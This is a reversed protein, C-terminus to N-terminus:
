GLPYHPSTEPGGILDFRSADFAKDTAGAGFLAQLAITTGEFGGEQSGGNDSAFVIITNNLQGSKKLYSYLRGVNRDLTSVFAAYAEQYRTFLQKDGDSLTDWAVVGPNRPALQANAPILGLDKQKQFRAARVADWGAAYQGKVKKL